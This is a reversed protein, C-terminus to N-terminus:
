EDALCVSIDTNGVRFSLVDDKIDKGLSCIDKITNLSFSMNVDIEEDDYFNLYEGEIEFNFSEYLHTIMVSNNDETYIVSLEVREGIYKELRDLKCGKTSLNKM